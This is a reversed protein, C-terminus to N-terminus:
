REFEKPLTIRAIEREQERVIVGGDDAIEPTDGVLDAYKRALELSVGNAQAIDRAMEVLGYTTIM